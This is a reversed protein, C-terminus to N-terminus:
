KETEPTGKKGARDPRNYNQQPGPNGCKSRQRRPQIITKLTAVFDKRHVPLFAVLTELQTKRYGCWASYYCILGIWNSFDKWSNFKKWGNRKMWCIPRKWYFSIFPFQVYNGHQLALRRRAIWLKHLANFEKEFPGIIQHALRGARIIQKRLDNIRQRCYEAFEKNQNEEATRLENEWIRRTQTLEVQLGLLGEYAALNENTLGCIKKSLLTRFTTDFPQM